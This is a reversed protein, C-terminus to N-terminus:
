TVGAGDITWVTPESKYLRAKGHNNALTRSGTTGVGALILTDTTIAISSASGTGNVIIIETGVPFPVSANPPITITGAANQYISKGADGYVLTYAGAKALQPRVSGGAYRNVWPGSSTTKCGIFTYIGNLDSVNYEIETEIGIFTSPQQFVASSIDLANGEFRTGVMTFGLAGMDAPISTGAQPDIGKICSEINGGVWTTGDGQGKDIIWGRSSGYIAADGQVGVNILYTSTSRQGGSSLFRVGVNCHNIKVNRITNEFCGASGTGGDVAIGINTRSLHAGGDTYGEIYLRSLDAFSCEQILVLNGTRSGCLLRLRELTCSPKNVNNATNSGLSILYDTGSYNLSTAGAASGSLGCYAPVIMESCDFDGGPVEVLGGRVGTAIFPLSALADQIANANIAASASDSFGYRSAFAPPYAYNVPTKGAAIEGETRVRSDDFQFSTIGNVTEAIRQRHASSDQHRTPIAPLGM